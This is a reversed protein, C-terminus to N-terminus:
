NIETKSIEKRVFLFSHNPPGIDTKRIINYHVHLYTIRLPMRHGKDLNERISKLVCKNPEPNLVRTKEFPSEADLAWSKPTSWEEAFERGISLRLSDIEM